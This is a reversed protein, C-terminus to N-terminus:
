SALEARREIDIGGVLHDLPQAHKLFGEGAAVMKDTICDLCVGRQRNELKECVPARAEIDHRASFQLAHPGDRGLSDVANHKGSDALGGRFDIARQRRFDELEVHLAFRFELQQRRAGFFQLAFRAERQPDIGINEGLGV